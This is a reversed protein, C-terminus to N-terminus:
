EGILLIKDNNYVKSLLIKDYKFKIQSIKIKVISEM